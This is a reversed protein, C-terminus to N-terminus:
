VGLIAALVVGGLCAWGLGFWPDVLMLEFVVIMFIFIFAIRVPTFALINEFRRLLSAIDANARDTM